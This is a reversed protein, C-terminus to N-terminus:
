RSETIAREVVHKIADWELLRSLEAFSITIGILAAAVFLVALFAQIANFISSVVMM